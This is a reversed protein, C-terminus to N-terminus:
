VAATSTQLRQKEAIELKVNTESCLNPGGTAEAREARQQVRSFLPANMAVVSPDQALTSRCRFAWENILKQACPCFPSLFPEWNKGGYGQLFSDSKTEASILFDM